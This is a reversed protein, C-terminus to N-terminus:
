ETWGGHACRRWHDMETDGLGEFSPAGVDMRSLIESVLTGASWLQTLDLDDCWAHAEDDLALLLQHQARVLAVAHALGAANLEVPHPTVPEIDFADLHEGVDHSDLGDFTSAVGLLEVFEGPYARQGDWQGRREIVREGTLPDVTVYPRPPGWACHSSHGARATVYLPASGFDNSWRARGDRRVSVRGLGGLGFAFRDRFESRNPRWRHDACLGYVRIADATV